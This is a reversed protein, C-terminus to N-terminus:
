FLTNAEPPTPAPKGHTHIDMAIGM